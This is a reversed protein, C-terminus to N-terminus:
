FEHRSSGLTAITLFARRVVILCGRRPAFESGDRRREALAKASRIARHAPTLERPQAFVRVTPVSPDGSARGDVASAHTTAHHRELEFPM